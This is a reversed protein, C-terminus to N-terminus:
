REPDARANSATGGARIRPLWLRRRRGIHSQAAVATHGASRTLETAPVRWSKLYSNVDADLSLRGDQALKVVAMAFVPKSISAAQFVTGTDVLKGTELDAVGYAKAWHIKFDKIVAISLGPVQFRKMLEQVTFGDFGQRNPTQPREIRAIISAIDGNQAPLPSACILIAMGFLFPRRRRM